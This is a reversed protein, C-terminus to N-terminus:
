RTLALLARFVCQQGLPPITGPHNWSPESMTGSQYAYPFGMAPRAPPHNWSPELIAGVQNWKLVIVFVGNSASRASPELITGLHNRCPEVKTRTRFDWQQGLPRITGLHSRRPEVKTGIRFYWQQGLPRITGLHVQYPEVQISTRLVVHSASRSAHCLDLLVHVGILECCPITTAQRRQRLRHMVAEAADNIEFSLSKARSQTARPMLPKSILFVRFAVAVRRLTIDQLFLLSSCM